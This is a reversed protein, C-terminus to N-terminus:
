AVRGSRLMSVGAGALLFLVSAGAFMATMETPEERIVLEPELERFISELEAESPADFYQGGTHEALQKLAAADLRTRLSIGEVKITAGDPSGV